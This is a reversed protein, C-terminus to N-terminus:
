KKLPIDYKRCCGTGLRSFFYCHSAAGPYYKMDVHIDSIHLWNICYCYNLFIILMQIIILRM